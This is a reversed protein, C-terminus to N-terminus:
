PRASEGAPARRDSIAAIQEAVWEPSEMPIYHTRGELLIDHGHSFWSALDPATPSANLNFVGPVWPIGARVVTVPQTISPIRLHLDSAHVNAQRYVAAEVRPPCALVLASEGPLVGYTCYDRLVAPQWLAFPPRGRFREIMEDPSSFANRRREIFSIDGPEHGYFNPSFITPDILLLSTVIDPCELAATVLAHGGTSHGIGIAGRIGLAVAIACLDHGFEAWPYPPDPKSSRGHGRLEVAYARRNPLAALSQDWIRGHFGTAHVLLLPQGEGPWEWVALDLGRVPLM